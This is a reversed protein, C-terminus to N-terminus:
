LNSTLCLREEFMCILGGITAPAVPMISLV